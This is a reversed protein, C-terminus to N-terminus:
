RVLRNPGPQHKIPALEGERKRAVPFEEDGDVRNGGSIMQGIAVLDPWDHKEILRRM